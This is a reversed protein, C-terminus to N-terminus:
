WNFDNNLIQDFLIELDSIQQDMKYLQVSFFYQYINNNGDKRRAGVTSPGVWGGQKVLHGV